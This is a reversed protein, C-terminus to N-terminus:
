RVISYWVKTMADYLNSDGFHLKTTYYIYSGTCIEVVCNQQM